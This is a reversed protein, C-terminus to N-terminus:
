RRFARDRTISNAGRSPLGKCAIIRGADRPRHARGPQADRHTHREALRDKPITRGRPLYGLRRLSVYRNRSPLGTGADMLIPRLCHSVSGLRTPLSAVGIRSQEGCQGTPGCIFRAHRLTPPCTAVRAWSPLMLRSRVGSLNGPVDVCRPQRPKQLARCRDNKQRHSAAAADRARRARAARAAYRRARYSGAVQRRAALSAIATDGDCPTSRVKRASGFDDVRLHAVVVDENGLARLPARGQKWHGNRRM